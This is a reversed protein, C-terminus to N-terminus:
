CLTMSSYITDSFCVLITFFCMQKCKPWCSVLVRVESGDDDVTVTSIVDDSWHNKSGEHIKCNQCLTRSSYITDFLCVLITFLCMQKCKLWWSVLVRVKSGDDDDTVISIADDSWHNKSAEHTKCNQCLSMSSIFQIQYVFWYPLCVCKNVNWGVLFSCECKAVTM